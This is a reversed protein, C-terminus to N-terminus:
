CGSRFDRLQCPLHAWCCCGKCGPLSHIVGEHENSRKLPIRLLVGGGDGRVWKVSRCGAVGPVVVRVPAGHDLPLPEGNMEFALLVDGRPDLAKDVAPPRLCPQAHPTTSSPTPWCGPQRRCPPLRKSLAPRRWTAASRIPRLWIPAHPVVFAIVPHQTAQLRCPMLGSCHAGEISAGYCQGAMDKDHGEFQLLTPPVAPLLTAFPEHRLLSRLAETTAARFCRSSPSQAQLCGPPLDKYQWPVGGLHV